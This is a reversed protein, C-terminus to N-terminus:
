DRDTPVVVTPCVAHNVVYTTVSGLLLGVFGGHGRSGVVLLDATRSQDILVAGSHGSQVVAQVRAVEGPGTAISEIATELNAKASDEFPEPDLPPAAEFGAAVPLQWAQVAIVEDDVSSNDLAWRLAAEANDSGDVGVVIKAM